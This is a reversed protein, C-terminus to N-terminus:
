LIFFFCVKNDKSIKDMTMDLIAAMMPAAATTSAPHAPARAVAPYTTPTTPVLL